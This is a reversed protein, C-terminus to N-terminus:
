IGAKGSPKLKEAIEAPSLGTFNQVPRGEEQRIWAPEGHPTQPMVEGAKFQRNMVRAAYDSPYFRPNDSPTWVGTEPCIEGPQVKRM